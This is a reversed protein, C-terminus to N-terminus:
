VTRLSTNIPVMFDGVSNFEEYEREIGTWQIPELREGSVITKASNMQFSLNIRMEDLPHFARHLNGINVFYCYGPDLRYLCNKTEEKFVIHVPSNLPIMCRYGHIGYDTHDVHYKTNWGKSAVAYQQRFTLTPFNEILSRTYSKLFPLLKTTGPERIGYGQYTGITFGIDTLVTRIIEPTINKPLNQIRQKFYNKEILLLHEHAEQTLKDINEVPMFRVVNAYNNPSISFNLDVPESEFNSYGFIDEKLLIENVSVPTM